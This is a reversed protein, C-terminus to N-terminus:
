RGRSGPERFFRLADVEREDVVFGGDEVDEGGDVGFPRDVADQDGFLHCEDGRVADVLEVREQRVDAEFGDGVQLQFTESVAGFGGDAGASM